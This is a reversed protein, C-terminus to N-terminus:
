TVSNLDQRAEEAGLMFARGRVQNGNNGRGQGGDIALVLAHQRTIILVVVSLARERDIIQKRANLLNVMRPGVMRAKLVVSQITTLETAAVMTRIQLALGYIYMEIRKNKPTVLYPVLRVLEHIRDTYTAHGADVMVHCWFKTELKQMGNNPCLQERMLTKFDEWTMGVTAERSRTRQINSAHNGVQAIITPLLNQLQQAIVTSFDPVEDIVGNVENGRDGGQGDLDGTQGGVRATPEGTR